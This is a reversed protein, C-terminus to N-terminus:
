YIAAAKLLTQMTALGTYRFIARYLGFRVFIPIFLLPSAAYIWLQQVSPWHWVELRLTFALWLSLWAALVDGAIVVMQKSRRPLALLRKTLWAQLSDAM